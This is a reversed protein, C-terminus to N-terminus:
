IHDQTEHIGGIARKDLLARLRKLNVKYVNNGSDLQAAIEWAELALLPEKKYTELGLEFYGIAEKVSDAALRTAHDEKVPTVLRLSSKPLDYERWIEPVERVVMDHQARMVKPLIQELKSNNLHTAYSREKRYISQGEHLVNTTVLNFSVYRETQIHLVSGDITVNTSLAIGASPIVLEVPM